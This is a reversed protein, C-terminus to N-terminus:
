ANLDMSDLAEQAVAATDTDDEQDSTLDDHLDRVRAELDNLRSGITGVSDLDGYVRVRDYLRTFSLGLSIIQHQLPTATPYLSVTSAMDNLLDLHLSINSHQYYINKASELTPSWPTDTARLADTNEHNKEEDGYEDLARNENDDDVDTDNDDLQLHESVGLADRHADDTPVSSRVLRDRQVKKTTKKRGAPNKKTPAKTKEITKGDNAEMPKITRGKYKKRWEGMTDSRFAEIYDLEVQNWDVAWVHKKRPVVGPNHKKDWEM